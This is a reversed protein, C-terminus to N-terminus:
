ARSHEQSAVQIWSECGRTHVGFVLCGWGTRDGGIRQRDIAALLRFPSVPNPEIEERQLVADQAM